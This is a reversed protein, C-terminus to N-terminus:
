PLPFGRLVRGLETYLKCCRLFSSALEQLSVSSGDSIFRSVEMSSSQSDPLKRVEKGLDIPSNRLLENIKVTKHSKFVENM